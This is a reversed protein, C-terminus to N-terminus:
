RQLGEPQNLWVNFVQLFYLVHKWSRQKMTKKLVTNKYHEYPETVSLLFFCKFLLKVEQSLNKLKLYFSNKWLESYFPLSVTFYACNQAVMVSIWYFERSNYVPRNLFYSNVLLTLYLKNNLICFLLVVRYYYSIDLLSPFVWSCIKGSAHM